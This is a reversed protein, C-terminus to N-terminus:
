DERSTFLAVLMIKKYRDLTGNCVFLFEEKNTIKTEDIDGLLYDVLSDRFCKLTVGTGPHSEEREKEVKAFMEEFDNLLFQKIDSIKTNSDMSENEKNNTFLTQAFGPSVCGVLVVIVTQLIRILKNNSM